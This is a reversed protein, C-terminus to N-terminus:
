LDGPEMALLPLLRRALFRRTQPGQEVYRLIQWCWSGSDPLDSAGVWGAINSQTATGNTSTGPANVNINIGNYPLFSNADQFVLCALGLQKINNTSQTRMAAYRVKQVAPLLLAILIAIIAIVVLL